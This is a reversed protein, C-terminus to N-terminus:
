KDMGEQYAARVVRRVAEYSVGYHSAIQRLPEGQDIRLLVNPWESYPIKWQPSSPGPRRQVESIHEHIYVPVGDVEAPILVSEPVFALPSRLGTARRNRWSVYFTVCQCILGIRWM